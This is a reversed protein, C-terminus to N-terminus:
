TWLVSGPKEASSEAPSPDRLEILGRDRLSQLGTYVDVERMPVVWLISKIDHNGDIQELLFQDTPRLAAETLREPSALLVPVKDRSLGHRDLNQMYAAEAKFIAQRLFAEGPHARYSQNLVQLAAAHDGERTLRAAMEVAPGLEPYRRAVQRAADQEDAPEASRDTGKETPGAARAPTGEAVDRDASVGDLLPGPLTDEEAEDSDLAELPDSPWPVDFLTPEPAPEPREEVIEVIGTRHLMYLFRIVQYESAHACLLIEHLTREGNVSGLIRSALPSTQVEPPTARQTRGLVVGMSTFSRRVQELEEHRQIGEFLIDEVALDVEIAYPDVAADEQFRFSADPWDFLSYVIEEAKAVIQREIEGESLLGREKFIKGLPHGTAEQQELGERLDNQTIKGRALLFQGLRCSPDSSSCSVIRGDRFEIAKRIKNRELELVGTKRNTSSWSLLDPLTFTRLNGQIM